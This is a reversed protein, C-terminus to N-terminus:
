RFNVKAGEHVSAAPHIIVIDNVDLGRIIETQPTGRHGIEVVRTMARGRTVTFVAWGADQRFLASTPVQLVDPKSWVTIEIEAAFGDGLSRWAETPGAPDLLVNVRQEDVGLASTETFASPEVRRVKAALAPEGGWHLIRAAMGPRVAVADQSLVDVVLELASPDGVELLPTGAEVVGESKRLIHLIQGHVPSTVEFQESARAGPSFRELAARAQEIEHSAVRESFRASALEAERIRADAAAQDLQAPPLSGEKALADVRALDRRAQDDAAEARTVTAEAQRQTDVTSALHEVAVQRTRPDLLPSPLPLLRALVMGPEVVDGEHLDIRALTGAVPGSVTYRERVRARGDDIVKLDLPARVARAVDVDIPQTRLAFLVGALLAAALLIVVIRFPWKM